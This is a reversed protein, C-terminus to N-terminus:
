EEVGLVFFCERGFFKGYFLAGDMFIKVGRGVRVEEKKALRWRSRRRKIKMSASTQM